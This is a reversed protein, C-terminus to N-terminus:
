LAHSPRKRSQLWAAAYLPHMCFAGKDKGVKAGAGKKGPPLPARLQFSALAALRARLGQLM